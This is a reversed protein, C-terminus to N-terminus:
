RSGILTFVSVVGEVSLVLSVDNVFLLREQSKKSFFRIFSEFTIYIEKM